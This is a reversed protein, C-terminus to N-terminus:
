HVLIEYMYNLGVILYTLTPKKNNGQKLWKIVAYKILGFWLPMQKGCIKLLEIYEMPKTSKTPSVAMVVHDYAGWLSCWVPVLVGRRVYSKKKNSKNLGKRSSFLPISTIIIIRSLLDYRPLTSYLSFTTKMWLTLKFPKTVTFIPYLIIMMIIIIVNCHHNM